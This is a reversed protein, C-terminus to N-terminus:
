IHKLAFNKKNKKVVFVSGFAGKGIMEHFEYDKIMVIESEAKNIM